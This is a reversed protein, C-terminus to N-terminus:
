QIAQLIQRACAGTTDWSFRPSRGSDPDFRKFASDGRFVCHHACIAPVLNRYHRSFRSPVFVAVLVLSTAIVAGAVGKM